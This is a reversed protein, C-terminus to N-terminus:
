QPPHPTTWHTLISQVVRDTAEEMIWHGADLEIEQFPGKIYARQAEVSARAVARDRNGWIFLSPRTVVPDQSPAQTPALPMARYWNLASTLAGPEAFVRLYEERQESTAPAYVGERLTALDNFTFMLEPLWPTTFLRFYSSRQQQEPDSELVARFAMPHPISLGTWTVVREPSAVVVGWGVASGWDHGVLHFREFGVADAVQLVDRILQDISYAAVGEPRAGPSYGRQDFALVRFGEDDAARSLPEWMASTEPFGHLMVVAPGDGDLGAVRARFTMGRADIRVLGESTGPALLLLAETAATHRRERDLSAWSGLLVLGPVVVLIAALALLGSVLLTRM